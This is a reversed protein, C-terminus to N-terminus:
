EDNGLEPTNHHLYPAIKIQKQRSAELIATARVDKRALMLHMAYTVDGLEKELLQRNATRWQGEQVVETPDCSEYGHRKIKMIAQIVEACEEALLTLREDEAPNLRNFHSM